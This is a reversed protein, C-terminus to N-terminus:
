YGFAILNQEEVDGQAGLQLLFPFPFPCESRSSQSQMGMLWLNEMRLRSLAMFAVTHPTMSSCTFRTPPIPSLAIDSVHATDRWYDGAVGPELVGQEALGKPQPYSAAEEQFSRAQTQSGQYPESALWCGKM